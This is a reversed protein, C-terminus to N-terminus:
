AGLLARMKLFETMMHDRAPHPDFISKGDLKLWEDAEHEEGRHLLSRVEDMVIDQFAKENAGVSKLKDVRIDGGGRIEIDKTPDSVDPRKFDAFLNIHCGSRCQVAIIKTGPKYTVRSLISEVKQLVEM